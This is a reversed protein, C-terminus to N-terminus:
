RKGQIHRLSSTTKYISEFYKIIGFRDQYFGFVYVEGLEGGLESMLFTFFKNEVHFSFGM